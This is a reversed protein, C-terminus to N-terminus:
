YDIRIDEEETQVPMSNAAAQIKTPLSVKTEMSRLGNEPINGSYVQKLPNDERFMSVTVNSFSGEGSNRLSVSMKNRGIYVYSWNRGFGRDDINGIIDDKFGDDDVDGVGGIQNLRALDKSVRNLKDEGIDYFYPTARCCGNGGTSLVLDDQLGDHDIDGLGSVSFSNLPADGVREFNGTSYEWTYLFQDNAVLLTEDNGDEDLDHIHYAFQSVNLGDPLSIEKTFSSSGINYISINNLTSSTNVFGFEQRVGDDNYDITPSYRDGWWSAKNFLTQDGNSPDCLKMRTGQQTVVEFTGDQDVDAINKPANANNCYSFEVWTENELDTVYFPGGYFVMEDRDGDQDWDVVPGKQVGKSRFSLNYGVFRNDYGAQAIELRANAVASVTEAREGTDSQLSQITNSFFPVAIVAVAM